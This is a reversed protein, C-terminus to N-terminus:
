RSQNVTDRFDDERGRDRSDGLARAPRKYLERQRSLSRARSKTECREPESPGSGRAFQRTTAGVVKTRDVGPIYELHFLGMFLM